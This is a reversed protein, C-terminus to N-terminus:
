KPLTFHFTSGSGLESEVWVRGGDSDIIKKVVSLGVGTGEVKDRPALTQFLQFIREFYKAAIGPGNDSVSFAWESRRDACRIRIDGQPKDFYKIGNSILNQFVQAVRTKECSIVPLTGEIKVSIHPPPALLDIVETVLVQLDTVSKKERVRGARSYQLIGDILGHM